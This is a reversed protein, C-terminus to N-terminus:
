AATVVVEFVDGEFVGEDEVDQADGMLVPTSVEAPVDDWSGALAEM